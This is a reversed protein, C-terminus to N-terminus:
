ILLATGRNVCRTIAKWSAQVTIGVSDTEAIVVHAFPEKRGVVKCTGYDWADNRNPRSNPRRVRISPLAEKVEDITHECSCHPCRIRKCLLCDTCKDRSVGHMCMTCITEM